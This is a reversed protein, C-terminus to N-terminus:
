KNKLYRRKDKLKNSCKPCGQGDSRHCVTTKWENGCNLCKWWVKKNSGPTVQDPTLEGNKIYNWEFAIDPRITALDNYGSMVYRNSCYPCGTFHDKNQTRSAIKTKWEHGQKCKWWVLANSKATHESPLTDNKDYDWEAALEPCVSA